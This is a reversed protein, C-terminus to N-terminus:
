KCNDRRRTDIVYQIKWEGNLRVLQFSNVGCHSFSGKLYFQYPTWVSALAADVRIADFRIREDADGANLKGISSSFASINETRVYVQGEKNRSITQLVATESFVSRLSVSDANKMATFMKNVTAKVSDEATQASISSVVLVALSLILFQKIAM